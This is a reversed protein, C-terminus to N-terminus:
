FILYFYTVCGHWDYVTHSCNNNILIYRRMLTETKDWTDLHWVDKETLPRKSGLTMLPNLWSFFIGTPQFVLTLLYM